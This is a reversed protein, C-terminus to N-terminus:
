VDANVGLLALAERMQGAEEAATLVREGDRYFVGDAYTDGIGAPVDGLPVADPFENRNMDHLYVVNVVVGNEVIAYNMGNM